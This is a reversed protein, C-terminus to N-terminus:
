GQQEAALENLFQKARDWLGESWLSEHTGGEVIWLEKGAPAMAFLEKADHVPIARDATGHAIFVPEQVDKIWERSLFQDKMLWAVPLIPYREAAVDLASTFPTELVVADAERLSAVYTAPGTGLSRGWLILPSGQEAAWDFVALSDALINEENIEGPSMPFGEYDFAVLGYGDAVMDAFRDYSTSFSGESGKFYIIIPMGQAPPVYWGRVNIFQDVPFVVLRAGPLNAQELSIIKGSLTYQLARQNKSLFLMAGLYLSIIFAVWWLIRARTVIKRGTLSM